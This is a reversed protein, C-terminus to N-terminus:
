RRFEEKWVSNSVNGRSCGREPIQIKFKAEEYNDCDMSASDNHILNTTIEGRLIWARGQTQKNRRRKRTDSLESEYSSAASGECDSEGGSRHLSDNQSSGSM